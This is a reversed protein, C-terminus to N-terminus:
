RAREARQDHRRGRATDTPDRETDFRDRELFPQAALEGGGVRDLAVVVRQCRDDGLHQAADLTLERAGLEWEVHAAAGELEAHPLLQLADRATLGAAVALDRGRDSRGATGRATPAAHPLM